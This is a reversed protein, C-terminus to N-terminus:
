AAEGGNEDTPEGYQWAYRVTEVKALTVPHFSTAPVVFYTNDETVIGDAKRLVDQQGAGEHFGKDRWENTVRNLEFVRYQAM